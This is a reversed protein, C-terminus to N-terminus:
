PVAGDRYGVRGRLDCGADDVLAACRRDPHRFYGGRDGLRGSEAVTKAAASASVGKGGRERRARERAISLRPRVSAPCSRSWCCRAAM